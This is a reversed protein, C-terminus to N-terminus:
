LTAAHAFEIVGSASNGWCSKIHCLGPAAQVSAALQNSNMGSVMSADVLGVAGRKGLIIRNVMGFIAVSM